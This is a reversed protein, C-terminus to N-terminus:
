KLAFQNHLGNLSEVMDQVLEVEQLLVAQEMVASPGLEKCAILTTFKTAMMMSKEGNGLKSEM